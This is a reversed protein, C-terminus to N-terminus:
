QKFRKKKRKEEASNSIEKLAPHELGDMENHIRTSRRPTSTAQLKQYNEVGRKNLLQVGTSYM